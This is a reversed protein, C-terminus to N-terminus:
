TPLEPSARDATGSRHEATFPRALLQAITADIAAHRHLIADVAEVIPMEVEFRRALDGVAQSGAVGEVVARSGALAEGLSSGEGLAIGLSMNRSRDSNCTLALDGLGSLGIMTEFRGGLAVGLRIMEALGRTMLAARASDGLRRGEVIGCAIAIVNKVAGGVQAGVPDDSLYPRFTKTGLASVLVRGLEIDTAGLTVASPLGQAVEIAFTPGSLVAVRVGPCTEALVETPLRGTELEVGKTAVVLPAARPLHPALARTVARLHQAPVVVIVADASAVAARLDESARIAPDLKIGPLFWPNEHSENISAAVEREHAWLKVVRGARQAVVGLATGWAGAGVVAVREIPKRLPAAEVM